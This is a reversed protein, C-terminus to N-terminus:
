LCICFLNINIFPPYYQPIFLCDTDTHDACAKFFRKSVGKNELMLLKDLISIEITSRKKYDAIASLRNLNYELILMVCLEFESLANPKIREAGARKLFKRYVSRPIRLSM